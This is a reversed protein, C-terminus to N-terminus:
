PSRATSMSRTRSRSCPPWHMRINARVSWCRTSIRRGTSCSASISKKARRPFGNDALPGLRSEDVDCIAVINETAAVEGLNGGGRGGVAIAAVNLKSNLNLGRVYGPAALVGATAALVSGTFQRRTLRALSTPRTSPTTQQM